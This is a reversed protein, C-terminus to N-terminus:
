LTLYPFTIHTGYWIKKKGKGMKLIEKELTVTGISFSVSTEEETM